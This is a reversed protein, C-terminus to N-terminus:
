KTGFTWGVAQDFNPGHTGKASSWDSQRRLVLTFRGNLKIGYGWQIYAKRTQSASWRWSWFRGRLKGDVYVKRRFHAANYFLSTMPCSREEDHWQGDEPWLCGRAFAESTIRETDVCFLASNLVRDLLRGLKTNQYHYELTRM